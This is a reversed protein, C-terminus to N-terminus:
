SFSCIFHKNLIFLVLLSPFLDDQTLKNDKSGYRVLVLYISISIITTYYMTTYM